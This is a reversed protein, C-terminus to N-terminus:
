VSEETVSTEQHMEVKFIKVDQKRNNKQKGKFTIRLLTGESITSMRDDLVASGWVLHTGEKNELYYRASVDSSKPVVRVLVGEISDNEKEPKWVNPEVTKWESM